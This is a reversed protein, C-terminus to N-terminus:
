GGTLLNIFNIQIEQLQNFDEGMNGRSCNTKYNPWNNTM